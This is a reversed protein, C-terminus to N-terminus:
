FLQEQLNEGKIRYGSDSAQDPAMRTPVQEVRFYEFMADAQGPKALLGTVPDIRVNVIGEPIERPRDPSQRLATRM